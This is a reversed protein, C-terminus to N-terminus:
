KSVPLVAIYREWWISYQDFENEIARLQNNGNNLIENRCFEWKNKWYIEEKTCQSDPKGHGWLGVGIHQEVKALAGIFSTKIKKRVISLLRKKSSEFFQKQKDVERSFSVARLENFLDREM